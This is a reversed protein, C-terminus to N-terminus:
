AGTRFRYAARRRWTAGPRLVVEPFAPQNVADPFDQPEIALGRHPAFPAGLMQGSYIQVGPQDTTISLRVDTEPSHLSIAPGEGPRLAWNHDLGGGIALQPHAQALVEGVRRPTRLDFPTGAVPLLEGTPILDPEVPTIAAARVMLNHDLVSRGSDGSLNFYLHHTLNVPCPRTVRAEWVIELTEDDTISLVVRADLAGPFGEEGEPSRCTLTCATPGVTEFRWLRRSLGTRGGHLCNDGENPTAQFRDGDISFRGDAIRNAYRGVVVGQYADDAEYGAADDFGLVMSGAVGPLHLSRVAAGYDLVEVSLGGPRSLTAMQVARGDALGGFATTAIV